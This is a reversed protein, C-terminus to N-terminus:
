ENEASFLYQVKLTPYMTVKTVKLGAGELLLSYPAISKWSSM